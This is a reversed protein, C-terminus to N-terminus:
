RNKHVFKEHNEMRVIKDAVAIKWAHGFASDTFLAPYELCLKKIRTKGKDPIKQPDYQLDKIIALITQTQRERRGPEDPEQESHNSEFCQVDSLLIVRVQIDPFCEAEYALAKSWLAQDRVAAQSMMVWHVYDDERVTAGGYQAVVAREIEYHIPALEPPMDPDYGIFLTRRKGNLAAYKDAVPLKGTDILHLVDSKSVQWREALEQPTFFSKDPLKIKM